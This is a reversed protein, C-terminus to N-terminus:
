RVPRYGTGPHGAIIPLSAAPTTSATPSPTVSTAAPSRTAYQMLRPAYVSRRTMSAARRTRSGSATPSRCAAAIISFPHVTCYRTRRMWGTSGPRCWGAARPPPPPDSEDGALPRLVQPRGDDAGDAAVGLRLQRSGMAAVVRDDVGALVDDLPDALQGAAGAHGDDEVRDPLVGEGGGEVAQPRPPEHDAVAVGRPRHLREAGPSSAALPTATGSGASAPWSCGSSPPARPSWGRATRPPRSRRRRLDVHAEGQRELVRGLRVAPQLRPLRGPDVTRTMSPSDHHVQRLVHADKRRTEHDAAKAGAGEPRHVAWGSSPRRATFRGPRVAAFRNNLSAMWTPSVRYRAPRRPRSGSVPAGGASAPSSARITSSWIAATRASAPM